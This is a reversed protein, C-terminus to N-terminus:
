NKLKIVVRKFYHNGDSDRFVPSVSIESKDEGINEKLPVIVSKAEFDYENGFQHPKILEAFPIMKYGNPYQPCFINKEYSDQRDQICDINKWLCFGVLEASEENNGNCLARVKFSDEKNVQITDSLYQVKNGTVRIELVQEESINKIGFAILGSIIGVVAFLNDGLKRIILPNAMVVYIYILQMVLSVLVSFQWLQTPYKNALVSTKVNLSSFYAIFLTVILFAIVWTLYGIFLNKSIFMLILLMVNVLGFTIYLSILLTILFQRSRFKRLKSKKM